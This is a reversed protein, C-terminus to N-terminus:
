RKRKPLAAFAAGRKSVKHALPRLAPDAHFKVQQAKSVVKNKSSLGQIHTTDKSVVKNKTTLKPPATTGM